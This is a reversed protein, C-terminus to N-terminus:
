LSRVVVHAIEAFLISGDVTNVLVIRRDVRRDSPSDNNWVGFAYGSTALIVTRLMVSFLQHGLRTRPALM